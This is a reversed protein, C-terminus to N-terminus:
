KEKALKNCTESYIETAECAHGLAALIDAAQWCVNIVLDEEDHKIGNIMSTTSPSNNGAYVIDAKLIACNNHQFHFNWPFNFLCALYYEITILYEFLNKSQHSNEEQM